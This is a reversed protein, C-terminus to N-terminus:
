QRRVVVSRHDSAIVHGPLGERALSEWQAPEVIAIADHEQRWRQQFTELTLSNRHPEQQIGFQLEGTYDVLTVTRGLYPPISQRYQGVSYLATEASLQSRFQEVLARGSRAGGYAVMLCQWALMSGATLLVANRTGAHAHRMAAAAIVAVATALLGWGQIWSRPIDPRDRLSISLGLAIAGILSATIWGARRWSGLRDRVHPGLIIALAPVLPLVYAPLKSQSLSFFVLIVAAYISLFRLSEFASTSNRRLWGRSISAKLEWVWPLVAAITIPIFYWWPETREHVTTLFRAFHEHLFFFRLFEPDRLSVVVFWPAAILLFLPLGIGVHLRRWIRGDREMISYIALSLGALVGVVIGKTLVALAAAVWSLLMWNREERSSMPALQALTFGLIAATLWCTFGGDLVNLHGVLVFLPSTGLFVLVGLAADRGFVRQAWAVCMILCLFSLAVPWARATWENLGFVEYLAATAWYQLPPKEFYKLGDLRPTIWDGSAVMERPIEAYRGEDPEFLPVFYTAAFWVMALAAWALWSLAARPSGDSAM